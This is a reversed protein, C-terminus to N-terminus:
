IVLTAAPVLSVSATFTACSRENVRPTLPLLLARPLTVRELSIRSITPALPMVVLTVSELPLVVTVMVPLPVPLPEVAM